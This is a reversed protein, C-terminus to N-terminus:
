LKSNKNSLKPQTVVSPAETITITKSVAPKNLKPATLTLVGCDLNAKINDVDVTKPDISFSRIVKSESGATKREGNIRVVNDEIQVQLDQAKIGPVDVSLTVTDDSEHFHHYRQTPATPLALSSSLSPGFFNEFFPDRYFLSTIISRNKKLALFTLRILRKVAKPQTVVLPAEAVPITKSVASKNQKPATLTLVGCDLNAEINEVDVTSPNISFCQIFTSESGATKREGSIRVVNDEIVVKLDKGMIGPVDVSLTVAQDTEVLHPHTHTQMPSFSRSLSNKGLSPSYYSEFFPDGRPLLSM